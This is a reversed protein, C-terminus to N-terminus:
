EQCTLPLQTPGRFVLSTVHEPPAGPVIGPARALLEELGIRAEMRALAAGLCFHSGHGFTLHDRGDRTPDFRDPEAFVREDRNASGILPLVTAGRPIEVGAIEVPATTTRFMLQTPAEFRLTEEVVRAIYGDESRARALLDPDALLAIVASGILYATTISGAVLLTFVFTRLEAPTLAGGEAEARLLVSILDDGLGSSREAIVDDLWRGMQESSQAIDDLQGAADPEFVALVMHESWRRFEDRQDPDVGLLAAIVATPYPVAVASQLDGGGATVFEDIFGRAIARIQREQEAVRRPTFGRNVILRMRAHADGDTGIISMGFSETDDASQATMAVPRTVLAAMAQSSFAQHDHLVRGVDAHRSVAHADLSEVYYVPASERLTAYAPYPDAQTEPALPEYVVPTM